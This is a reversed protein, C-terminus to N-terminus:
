YFKGTLDYELHDLCKSQKIKNEKVLEELCYQLLNLDTLKLKLDKFIDLLTLDNGNDKEFVKLIKKKLEEIEIKKFNHEIM